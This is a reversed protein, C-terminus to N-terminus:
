KQIRISVVAPHSTNGAPDVAVYAFHDRGTKNEYPTYTFRASGEEALTVAGRAPRKTIRFELTEGEPDVGSLEASIAVDRETVLSFNEATPLSLDDKVGDDWRFLALAPVALGVALSLSLLCFMGRWILRRQEM